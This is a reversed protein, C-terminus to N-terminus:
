GRARRAAKRALREAAKRIEEALTAKIRELMPRKEADWAPRMFPQAGRGDGGFERLHAQPLAGAGVFLQAGTPKEYEPERRQLRAQRKSLRTGMGVSRQLQGSARPARGEALDAMPQAAQRLTRRLVNKGTAKPLEALAKELERLGEVRVKM